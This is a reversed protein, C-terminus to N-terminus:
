LSKKKIVLIRIFHHTLLLNISVRLSVSSVMKFKFAMVFNHLSGRAEGVSVWQTCACM